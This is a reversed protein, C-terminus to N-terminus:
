AGGAGASAWRAITAKDCFTFQGHEVVVIAGLAGRTPM